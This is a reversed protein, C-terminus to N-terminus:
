HNREMIVCDAGWFERAMEIAETRDKAYAVNSAGSVRVRYPLVAAATREVYVLKRVPLNLYASGDM